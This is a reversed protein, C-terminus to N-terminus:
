AVEIAKDACRECLPANDCEDRVVADIRLFAIRVKKLVGGLRHAECAVIGSAPVTCRFVEYHHTMRGAGIDGGHQSEVFPPEPAGAEIRDGSALPLTDITGSSLPAVYVYDGEVYGSYPTVPAAGFGLAALLSTFWALIDTM